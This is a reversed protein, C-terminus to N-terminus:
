QSRLLEYGPHLSAYDPTLEAAASGRIESREMRAVARQMRTVAASGASQSDLESGLVFVSVKRGGNEM